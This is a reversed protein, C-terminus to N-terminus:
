ATRAVEAAKQVAKLTADIGARTAEPRNSVGTVVGTLSAFWGARRDTWTETVTCAGEAAEIAYSWSSVPLGFSSVDFAFLSPEECRTVKVATSWRRWGNANRGRFRAGVAPGTAGGLWKGGTNEPSLAGMGPLDTVLAWVREAPAQVTVAAQVTKPDSMSPMM